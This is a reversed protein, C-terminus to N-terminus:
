WSKPMKQDRLPVYEITDDTEDSNVFHSFRKMLRPKELVQKWECEFTGVLSEMESELAECIGIRDHIIVEKLYDLGGELKDM